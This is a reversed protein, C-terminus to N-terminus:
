ISLSSKETGQFCVGNTVLMSEKQATYLGLFMGQILFACPIRQPLWIQSCDNRDFFQLFHMLNIQNTNGIWKVLRIFIVETM